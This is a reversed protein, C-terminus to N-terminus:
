VSGLTRIGREGGSEDGGKNGANLATEVADVSKIAGPALKMIQM